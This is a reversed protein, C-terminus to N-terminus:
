NAMGYCWELTVFGEPQEMPQEDVFEEPLTTVMESGNGTFSKLISVHFVPHIKSSVHLALRYAVKGM